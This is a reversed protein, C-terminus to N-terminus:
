FNVPKARATPEISGREFPSSLLHLVLVGELDKKALFAAEVLSTQPYNFM